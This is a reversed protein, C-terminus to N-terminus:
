KSKKVPENVREILEEEITDDLNYDRSEIKRNKSWRKFDELEKALDIGDKQALQKIRGAVYLDATERRYAKSRRTSFVIMVILFLVVFILLLSLSSFIQAEYYGTM